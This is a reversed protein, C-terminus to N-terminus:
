VPAGACVDRCPAVEANFAQAPCVFGCEIPNDVARMARPTEVGLSLFYHEGEVPISILTAELLSKKVACPPLVGIGHQFKTSTIFTQPRDMDNEVPEVLPTILILLPHHVLGLSALLNSISM